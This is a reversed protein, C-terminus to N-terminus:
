SGKRNRQQSKRAMRRRTKNHAKKHSRSGGWGALAAFQSAPDLEPPQVDESLVPPLPMLPTPRTALEANYTEIWENMGEESTMDFGRAKGMMLISKAMGFNAPNSMERKMQRAAKDDLARLCAAANELHFERQLFQWFARLERIAQPAEDADASVKQPFIEFLLERIDDPSMSAPSVSQYQMGYDILSHVWFGPHSDEEQLAQAEPSQIFLEILQNEYQAAKKELIMGDRDFLNQRINFAM